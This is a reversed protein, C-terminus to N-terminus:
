ADTKSLLHALLSFAAALIPPVPVMLGCESFSKARGCESRLSRMNINERHIDCGLDIFTRKPCAIGGGMPSEITRQNVLRWDRM